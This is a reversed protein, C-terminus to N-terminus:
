MEAMRFVIPIVMQQRVNRGRQKGPQWKPAGNLVRLAEEDCGYGIGRVVEAMTITGDKDVVFKIFVRGGVHMDLAKRPYKLNEAVWAYFAPYGNVPRAPEEVIEFIEDVVEERAEEEELLVMEETRTIIMEENAEMSFDVEIKQEIEEHDAVEVIEPQQIKPPPPPAQVTLPIDQMEEFVVESHQLKVLQQQEYDPFEFLAIVVAIAVVLGLQFILQRYRNVDVGPYKKLRTSKLEEPHALAFKQEHTLMTKLAAIVLGTVIAFVLLLGPLGLTHLLPVM